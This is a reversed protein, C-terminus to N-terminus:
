LKVKEGVCGRMVATSTPPFTYLERHLSACRTLTTLDTGLMLPAKVLCWLAFMTRYETDTMGGKGLCLIRFLSPDKFDEYCNLFFKKSKPGQM